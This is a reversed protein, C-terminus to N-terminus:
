KNGTKNVQKSKILTVVDNLMDHRKIAVTFLKNTIANSCGIAKCVIGFKRYLQKQKEDAANSQAQTIKSLLEKLQKDSDQRVTQTFVQVFSPLSNDVLKYLEDINKPYGADKFSIDNEQNLEEIDVFLRTVIGTQSEEQVSIEVNLKKASEIIKDYDSKKSFTLKMNDMSEYCKKLEDNTITPKFITNILYKWNNEYKKALTGTKTCFEALATNYAKLETAITKVNDYKYLKPIKHEYIASWWDQSAPNKLLMKTKSVTTDAAEKRNKSISFIRKILNVIWEWLDALMGETASLVDFDLYDDLYSEFGSFSFKLPKTSTILPEMSTEVKVYNALDLM